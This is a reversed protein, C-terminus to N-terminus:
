QRVVQSECKRRPADSDLRRNGALREDADLDRVRREVQDRELLDEGAADVGLEPLLRLDGEGQPLVHGALREAGIESAHRV